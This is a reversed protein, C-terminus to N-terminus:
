CRVGGSRTRMTVWRCDLSSPQFFCPTLVDYRVVVGFSWLGLLQRTKSPLAELAGLWARLTALQQQVAPIKCEGEQIPGALGPTGPQRTAFYEFCVAYELVRIRAATTVNDSLGLLFVLVALLTIARAMEHVPRSFSFLLPPLQTRYRSTRGRLRTPCILADSRLDPAVPALTSIYRRVWPTLDDWWWPQIM